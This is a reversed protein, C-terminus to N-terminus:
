LVAGLHQLGATTDATTDAQCGGKLNLDDAKLTSALNHSNLELEL